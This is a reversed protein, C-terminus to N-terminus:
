WPIREGKWDFCHGNDEAVLNSNVDVFYKAAESPTFIKNRKYNKTFPRSLDTDVTGPHYAYCILTRNTRRLEISLNKIAMHLAAKTIRYSYWGGLGNDSISGVRASFAAFHIGPNKRLLKQFAKAINLTTWTNTKTSHLLQELSLDRINREPKIVESSLFGVTNCILSLKSFNRVVTQAVNCMQEEDCADAQIATLSINAKQAQIKLSEDLVINRGVAVINQYQKTIVLQNVIARGIGRSAGVILATEGSQLTM